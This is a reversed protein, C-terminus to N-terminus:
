RRIAEPVSSEFEVAIPGFAASAGTEILMRHLTGLWTAPVTEDDDVFALFEGRAIRVAHNRASALGREPEIAYSLSLSGSFAGVTTRASGAKDNDIVVVEFEPAGRQALLSQLLKRLGNPRRFTAICVSSVPSESGM